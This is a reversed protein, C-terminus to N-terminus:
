GPMTEVRQMEFNEAVEGLVDNLQEIESDENAATVQVRVGVQVRPVLPYPALAVYIGREFLFKGVEDIDDGRGLPLAIVPYGSTNLTHLGLESIRRLVMATKRRLIARIDDGEADNVRFGALVTALSATPCPGSYLYPAAVVKLYNKLPTPLALFAALSSYAKSFGGVLVVNDYSEGFFRVIGNGRHGWPMDPTPLEGIIGFGHADDVYLLADQERCIRAYVPLDPTNGTMSSVGDVCFIRKMGPPLSRLIQELHYPDNPRVRHLSAGAGRAVACGEYITSHAHSDVLVAGQGALAPIVSTHILTITPFVLTDPAGLLATLRAEIEAYLRTSGQLRSWSAYTGWQRLAADVSEIIFPHRDFGLYNRSAFDCLWRKGIRIRRGRVEDIVSDIMPHSARLRELDGWRHDTRVHESVVKSGWDKQPVADWFHTM